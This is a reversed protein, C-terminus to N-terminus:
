SDQECRPTALYQQLTEIHRDTCQAGERICYQYELRVAAGDPESRRSTIETSERRCLRPWAADDDVHVYRGAVGCRLKCAPLSHAM